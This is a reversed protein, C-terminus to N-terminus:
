IIRERITKPNRSTHFLGYIKIVNDYVKYYIKYPFKRLLGSHVGRRNKPNMLPTRGISSLMEELSLRFEEELGNRREQYWGVIELLDNFAEDTYQVNYKIPM